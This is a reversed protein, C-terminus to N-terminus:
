DWDWGEEGVRGEERGGLGGSSGKDGRADRRGSEWECGSGGMGAIESGGRGCVGGAAREDCAREGL